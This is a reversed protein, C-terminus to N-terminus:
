EPLLLSEMVPQELLRIELEQFIAALRNPNPEFNQDGSTPVLSTNLTILQRNRWLIEKSAGLIQQFRKPELHALNSFIGDLDGYATLWKVATKPGVGPIGSIHDASDGILSLYDVIQQPGIGWKEHVQPADLIRWGVKPTASPPPLVQVIWPRDLLQAFDKDASVIGVHGKELAFHAAYSAIWDDAEVAVEEVIKHGMCATIEKIVPLQLQLEDPMAPRHGKYDPLLEVRRSCLGRDFFVIMKQPRYTNQLRKLSSAWGRIAGTPFGAKNRLEAPMAYFSRYALNLGDVLLHHFQYSSTTKEPKM